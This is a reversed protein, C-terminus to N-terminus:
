NKKGYLEDAMKLANYANVIGASTSLKKFKTKKKSSGPIITKAKPYKLSSEILLTRLASASINPYYAKVLAAVGAVVPSASSTGSAANYKNNPSTSYIDVGPAFIDVTKRGYNTFDAALHRNNNNAGSAAVDMWHTRQYEQPTPYHLIKDNNESNNGAAHVILVDNAIAYDIADKVFEPHKSYKKGFSGNIIKAGNRVAYRIALAVDKDREDGGPVVRLIMLQVSDVIGQTGTNNNRVAGIIGTVSTGHSYGKAQIDSNGYITDNIDDVNDGIIGPRPDYTLSYKKDLNKDFYSIGEELDKVTFGETYSSIILKKIQKEKETQADFGEADKQTLSDTELKEKLFDESYVLANKLETYYDKNKQYTKIKSFIDEKAKTWKIFTSLDEKAIDKKSKNEFKTLHDKYFRIIEITEGDINKGDSGGLFNWGYYDDIYGNGDDDKGNYPIEKPNHWLRARLDEHLTDIGSDIIAVIVTNQVLGKEAMFDLGEQLSIGRYDSENSSYHHWPISDQSYSTHFISLFSITFIIISLKM